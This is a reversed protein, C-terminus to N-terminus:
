DDVFQAATTTPTRPQMASSGTEPQEVEPAISPLDPESAPTSEDDPPQGPRDPQSPSAPFTSAAAVPHAAHEPAVGAQTAPCHTAQADSESQGDVPVLQATLAQTDLVHTVAFVARPVAHM